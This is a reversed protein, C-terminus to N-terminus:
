QIAPQHEQDAPVAGVVVWNSAGTARRAPTALEAQSMNSAAVSDVEFIM